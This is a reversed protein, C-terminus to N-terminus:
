YVAVSNCNANTESAIREEASCVSREGEERLNTVCFVAFDVLLTSWGGV